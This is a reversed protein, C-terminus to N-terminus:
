SADHDDALEALPVAIGAAVVGSVIWPNSLTNMILGNYVGGGQGRCCANCTGGCDNGCQGRIAEGQVLLLSPSASPPAAAHQWVRYVGSSGSTALRYVGGAIGEMAFHGRADTIARAVATDKAYIAIAQNAQVVGQTDVLQGTLTGDPRLAVDRVPAPTAVVPAEQAVITSSATMAALSALTVLFATQIRAKMIKGRTRVNM